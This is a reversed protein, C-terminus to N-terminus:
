INKGYSRWRMDVPDYVLAIGEDQQVTVNGGILFRNEALSSASNNKFSVIGTGVNDIIIRQALATDWTVIGTLDYNGTVDLRLLSIKEVNPVVLDNTNANIQVTESSGFIVAGEIIITGNDDTLAFTGPKDPYKYVHTAGSTVLSLDHQARKSEDAASVIAFEADTFNVKVNMRRWDSLSGTDTDKIYLGSQYTTYAGFLITTKKEVLYISGIAPNALTIPLDARFEVQGDWGKGTGGGTNFGLNQRAFERWSSETFAIDNGDVANSLDTSLLESSSAVVGSTDYIQIKSDAVLDHNKYYIDGKPYEAIVDGAGTDTVILAQGIIEFKYAM